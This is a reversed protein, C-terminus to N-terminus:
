FVGPESTGGGLVSRQPAGADTRSLFLRAFENASRADEDSVAWFQLGERSWSVINYGRRTLRRAHLDQYGPWIFLNLVHKQRQYVVAAVTQDGVYDLRGGVLAYGRDDLSVITPTFDLRGSFWRKIAAPDSSALDVLHNAQLSRLHNVVVDGAYETGRVPESFTWLFGICTLALLSFFVILVKASWRLSPTQGKRRAAQELSRRVRRELTPSAPFRRLRDRLVQRLARQKQMWRACPACASVHTEIDLSTPLDLEGDLYGHLLPLAAECTM